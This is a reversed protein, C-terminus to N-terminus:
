FHHNGRSKIGPGRACWDRSWGHWAVGTVSGPWRNWAQIPGTDLVYDSKSWNKCKRCYHKTLNLPTLTLSKSKCDHPLKPDCTQTLEDTSTHSQALADKSVSVTCGRSGQHLLKRAPFTCASSKNHSSPHDVM